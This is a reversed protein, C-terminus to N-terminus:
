KNPQTTKQHLGHPKGHVSDHLKGTIVTVEEQGIQIGKIEEVERIVTALDELVM